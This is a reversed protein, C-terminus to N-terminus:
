DTVPQWEPLTRRHLIRCVLVGQPDRRYFIALQQCTAELENLYRLAQDEGWVRLTYHTIDMLDSEARVSFRFVAM